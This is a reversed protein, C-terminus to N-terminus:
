NLKYIAPFKFRNFPIFTQVIKDLRWQATTSIRYQVAFKQQKSKLRLPVNQYQIVTTTNTADGFAKKGFADRGFGGQPRQQSITTSSLTETDNYICSLYITGSISGLIFTTDFYLKTIDPLDDDFSKSYWTSTIAAGDDTSGSYLEHVEGTTPEGFYFHVENTSDTYTTADNAAINRWDQWGQYRVDYCVCSDNYTGFLSYFLHYKFNFYRGVLKSKNTSSLSDFVQQIRASKNTTRVSTYNAVEGVSYVGDDAAFFLDEGVQCISRHSVCGISRTILEVSFVNITSTTSVRYISDTLFVYLYDKFKRIGSIEKGSGPQFTLSGKNSSTGNNTFSLPKTGDGYQVSFLLTDKNSPDVGWLRKDFYEGYLAPVGESTFSQIASGDWYYMDDAGNFLYLNGGAQVSDMNVNDTFTTTTVFTWTGGTGYGIAVNSGNSAFKIAQDISSTHYENMGFIETRSSGVSGIQSYGLRNGVGTQGKFDCNIANPSEKDRVQRAGLFYNCGGSFDNRYKTVLQNERVAM